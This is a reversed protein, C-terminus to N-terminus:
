TPMEQTLVGGNWPAALNNKEWIPIGSLRCQVELDDVWERKPPTTGPGSMAGVVIWGVAKEGSWQLYPRFAPLVPGLLPEISIWKHKAAVQVLAEARYLAAADEVTTGVWANDPFTFDQMRGLNKTLFFFTHQSYLRVERLVHLIDWSDVWAGFLDGMFQVGIRRPKRWHALKDLQEGHWHPKFARCQPCARLNRSAMRKAWCNGGYCINPKDPTGGVGYCGFGLPNISATLYEIM